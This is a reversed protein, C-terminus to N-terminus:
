NAGQHRRILGVYKGLVRVSDTEGADVIIDRFAPNAGRLILRGNRRFLFKLTAEGELLVAAIEGDNVEQQSNIIAIDRTFIGAGKMSDGTIELAFLRNGRFLKPQVPLFEEVQEVAELPNGAAIKGLLPIGSPLTITLKLSRAKGPLRELMGKKEMLRLHSRVANQSAFGFKDAIERHTPMMGRRRFEADLFTAIERQRPTPTASM